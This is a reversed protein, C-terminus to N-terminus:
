ECVVRFGFNFQANSGIDARSSVDYRYACRVAWPFRNYAGGRLIKHSHSGYPGKPGLPDIQAQSSYTDHWDGVWEWVGGHMDYLGWPNPLRTAVPHASANMVNPWGSNNWYWAYDGLVEDSDGFSFATATGARCAYEWEAETPLRCLRGTRATLADCFAAAQSWSTWGVPLQDASSIQFCDGTCDAPVNPVYGMVAQYQAQTVETQGMAFRSVTVLHQPSEKDFNIGPLIFRDQEEDSSGMTFTGGPIEIVTLTIGNGLDFTETTTNRQAFIAKVTKDANMVLGAPNAPALTPDRWFDFPGGTLDGEWRDFRWGDAPTATVTLSSGPAYSGGPPDVSGQGEIVVTLTAGWGPGPTPLPTDCGQGMLLPTVLPMGIILLIRHARNM